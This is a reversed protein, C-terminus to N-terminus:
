AARERCMSEDLSLTSITLVHGIEDACFHGAADTQLELM